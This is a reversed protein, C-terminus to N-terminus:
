SARLYGHLNYTTVRPEDKMHAAFVNNKLLDLAVQALAPRRLADRVRRPLQAIKEANLEAVQPLAMVAGAAEPGLAAVRRHLMQHLHELTAEDLRGRRIMADLRSVLIAYPSPNLAGEPLDALRAREANGPLEREPSRKHLMLNQNPARGSAEAAKTAAPSTVYM